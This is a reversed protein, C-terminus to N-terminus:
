ARACKKLTDFTRSTIDSGLVRELLSMFVPGKPHPEYVTFVECGVTRLIHVGDEVIPLRLSAPAEARLFTVVRKGQAPADLGAFPDSDVLHQVAAASRLHVPFSRGLEAQMAAEARRMLTASDSASADFAVNGSGLITKVAGFGAAEFSRKLDPMTVYMPSVGRLFALYRTM